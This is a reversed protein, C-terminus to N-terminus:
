RGGELAMIKKVRDDNQQKAVVVDKHITDVAITLIVQDPVVKIEAEASVVIERPQVEAKDARAGGALAFAAAFLMSLTRM